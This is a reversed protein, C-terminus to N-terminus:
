EDGLSDVYTQWIRKGGQIRDCFTRSHLIQEWCNDLYQRVMATDGVHHLHPRIRQVQYLWHVRAEKLVDRVLPGWFADSEFPLQDIQHPLFPSELANAVNCGSHHLRGNLALM